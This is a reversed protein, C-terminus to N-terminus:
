VDKISLSIRKRELDTEIVKVSVKQNVKIFDAPNEVFSKSIMSKHVLGDQHVGIDVFAGFATVNTVTGNLVMGPSLDEIKEIGDSYTFLTFESRPDRGPKELEAIIDNVTLLGASEDTYKGPDIKATIGSMGMLRDLDLNLDGAIREAIHYNEPHVASRDLPNEGNMIRLFGAAQQYATKGLGKVELLNSRQLFLGSKERHRVISAALTKGLGSVYGLLEIGASNVDVGVSNVCSVVVDDLATKLKKKDVDHQYQGVGISQPDIKILESLPDQLRRGISVAGRFTIDLDPFEERAAESASYVSAGSENVTIVKIKGPLMKKLYESIERSGTGNGVAAAEVKYKDIYGKIIDLAKKNKEDDDATHFASLVTRGILKGTSDILVVKSGTRIGPDVAIVPKNGYPPELLLERLGSAFVAISYEDAKEKLTGTYWNEISPLLLRPWSENVARDVLGSAKVSLKGPLKMNEYFNRRVLNCATEADPRIKVSLIKEEHGRMVALVRHPPAKEARERYDFYDRYKQGEARKKEIVRSEIFAEKQFLIRLKRRIESNESVLAAIIDTCGELVDEASSLGKEIDIYKVAEQDPDRVLGEIIGAALPKLGREEATKARTKKGEKYPLYIDEIEEASFSSNIKKELEETILNKDTLTKIIFAKRKVLDTFYQAKDRIAAIQEENLNGTVEKRYRAMFPVTAKDELLLLVAKVNKEPISLDESIIKSIINM